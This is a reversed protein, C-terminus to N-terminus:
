FVVLFVNFRNWTREKTTDLGFPLVDLLNM